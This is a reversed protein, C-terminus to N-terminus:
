RWIYILSVSCPNGFTLVIFWRSIPVIKPIDRQSIMRALSWQLSIECLLIIYQIVVIYRQLSTRQLSIDYHVDFCYFEDSLDPTDRYNFKNIIRFSLTPVIFPRDLKRKKYAWCKSMTHVQFCNNSKPNIKMEQLILSIKSLSNKASKQKIKYVYNIYAFFATKWASDKPTFEVFPSTSTMHVHFTLKLLKM